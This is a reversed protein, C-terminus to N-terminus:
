ETQPFEVPEKCLEDLTDILKLTSHDQNKNIFDIIREVYEKPDIKKLHGTYGVIKSDDRLNPSYKQEGSTTIGTLVREWTEKPRNSPFYVLRNNEDLYFTKAKVARNNSDHYKPYSGPPYSM